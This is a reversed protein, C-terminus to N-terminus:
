LSLSHRKFRVYKKALKHENQILDDNKLLIELALPEYFSDIYHIDLNNTNSQRLIIKKLGRNAEQIEACAKTKNNM